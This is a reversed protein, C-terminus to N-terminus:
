LNPKIIGRVQVDTIKPHTGQPFRVRIFRAAVPAPLTFRVDRVHNLQQITTWQAADASVEVIAQAVPEVFSISVASLSLRREM